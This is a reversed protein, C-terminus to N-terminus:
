ILLHYIKSYYLLFNLSFLFVFLLQNRYVRWWIQQIRHQPCYRPRINVHPLKLVGPHLEHRKKCKLLKQNKHSINIVTLILSPDTVKSARTGRFYYIPIIDWHKINKCKFMHTCKILSTYSLDIRQSFVGTFLCKSVSCDRALTYQATTKRILHFLMFSKNWTIKLLLQWRTNVPQVNIKPLLNSNRIKSIVISIKCILQMTM